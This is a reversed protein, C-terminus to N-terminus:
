SLTRSSYWAIDSSRVIMPLENAWKRFAASNVRYAVPDLFTKLVHLHGTSTMLGGWGWFLMFVDYFLPKQWHSMFESAFRRNVQRGSSSWPYKQHRGPRQRKHFRSQLAISMPMVDAFTLCPSCVAHQQLSSSQDVSQQGESIDVALSQSDLNSPNQLCPASNCHLLLWYCWYNCM